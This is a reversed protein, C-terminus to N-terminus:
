FAYQLEVSIFDRDHLYNADEAGFFRTYSLTAFWRQLYILQLQPTLAKRDELFTGLPLPTNGQVDHAFAVSGILTLAGLLGEYTWESRLVYGWSVDDALRDGVAEFALQEPDPLDFVKMLGIEGILLWQNAGFPNHPGILKSATVQFQGTAHREFGTIEAGPNTSGLQSMQHLTARVVEASAIQLPQNFRYSVEGQLAIGTRGLGTNWSLGLLQIDEPFELFYNGTEPPTLPSPTARTSFIPLRSHYTMFYIGFESEGLSPALFRLALGFQGSDRAERDNTRPLVTGPTGEPVTGNLFLQNCGKGVIDRTSFYTGCVDLELPEFQAEIAPDAV